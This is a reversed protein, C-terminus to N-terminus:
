LSWGRPKTNDRTITISDVVNGSGGHVEEWLATSANVIDLHGFGYSSNRFASWPGLPGDDFVQLDEDCGAAGSVLHVPAGPHFYPDNADETGNLVTSDYTPWLREYSHQHAEFIIDVGYKFFLDELDTKWTALSLCDADDSDSCYMPRHGYVVIWDIDSNQTAALLDAEIYQYQLLALEPYPGFNRGVGGHGETAEYVFYVETDYSIWHSRGIDFSFFLNETLDFDPMTFRARYNLADYMGEHNGISVMYPTNAMIPQMMNFWEDGRTANNTFMDYAFDGNHVIAHSRRSETESTLLPVSRANQLGLDGYVTISPNTLNSPMTMFSYQSSSPNSQIRYCYEHDPLLNVLTARHIYQTHHLTGNDVFKTSTSPSLESSTSGCEGYAVQPNEDPDSVTSWTVTM